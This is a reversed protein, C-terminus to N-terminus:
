YVEWYFYVAIGFNYVLYGIYYVLKELRQSLMDMGTPMKRLVMTKFGM